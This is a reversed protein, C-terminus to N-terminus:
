GNDTEKIHCLNNHNYVYLSSIDILSKGKYFSFKMDEKWYHIQQGKLNWFPVQKMHVIGDIKGQERQLGQHLYFGLAHNAHNELYRILYTELGM